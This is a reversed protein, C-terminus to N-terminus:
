SSSTPKFTTDLPSSRDWSCPLMAEWGDGEQLNSTLLNLEFSWPCSVLSIAAPITPIAGGTQPFIRNPPPDWPKWTIEAQEQVKSTDSITLDYLLSMLVVLKTMHIIDSFLSSSIKKDSETDSVWSERMLLTKVTLWPNIFFIFQLYQWSSRLRKSRGIFYFSFKRTFTLILWRQRQIWVGPRPAMKYNFCNCWQKCGSKYIACFNGRAFDRSVLIISWVIHILVWITLWFNIEQKQKWSSGDSRDASGSCLDSWHARASSRNAYHAHAGPKLCLFTTM